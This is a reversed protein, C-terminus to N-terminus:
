QSKEASQACYITNPQEPHQLGWRPQFKAQVNLGLISTSTRFVGVTQISRFGLLGQGPLLTDLCPAVPFCTQTGM